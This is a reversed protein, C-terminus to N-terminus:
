IMERMFAMLSKAIEKIERTNEEVNKRIQTKIKAPLGNFDIFEKVNLFGEIKNAEDSDNNLSELNGLFNIFASKFLMNLSAKLAAPNQFKAKNFGIFNNIKAVLLTYSPLYFRAFIKFKNLMSIKHVQNFSKYNGKFNSFEASKITLNLLTTLLDTIQSFNAELKVENSGNEFEFKFLHVLLKELEFAFNFESKCIKQSDFIKKANEESTM